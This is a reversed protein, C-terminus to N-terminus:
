KKVIKGKLTASTCDIIKVMVYEGINYNNKKFVVTANHTTRGYFEDNSKKSIGEILVKLTKGIKNQMNILSHQTQKEIIEVLRKQKINENVDDEMRAAPTNPRESYKFMYGFDYKVYDMLSLTDEHDKETESCFGTIIDM